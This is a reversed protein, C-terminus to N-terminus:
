IDIHGSMVIVAKGYLHVRDNSAMHVDLEGGRTSAQFARMKKKGLIRSWYPGLVTHAAGTVPDENVGLWPAFFRSVFDHPPDGRATVIAGNVEMHTSGLMAQFDPDLRKVDFPGEVRVLVDKGRRSYAVDEHEDVGMAELLKEPVDWPIPDDAPFDLMILDEKKRAVLMGSQTHFSIQDSPLGMVDFLVKSTALTAHGCLPVEVKPTFWRLLFEVSEAFSRQEVSSVFATESLNMEAAIAQMVDDELPSELLCVAAPNGKFPEATFADVQFVPISMTDVAAPMSPVTWMSPSSIMVIDIFPNM